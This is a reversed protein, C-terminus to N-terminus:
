SREDAEEMRRDGSKLLHTLFPNRVKKRMKNEHNIHYIDSLDVDFIESVGMALEKIEVKGNEVAGSAQLAYIFEVIDAKTGTWAFKKRKYGTAQNDEKKKLTQIEKSLFATLLEYAYLEAVIIDHSTHFDPDFCLCPSEALLHDKRRVFYQSDLHRAGCRTYEYVGQYKGYIEELKELESELYRRLMKKNGAPKRAELRFVQRFYIMRGYIPPKVRKFFYIEEEENKFPKKKVLQRLQELGDRIAAISREAIRLMQTEENSIGELASEINRQFVEYSLNKVRIEEVINILSIPDLLAIEM